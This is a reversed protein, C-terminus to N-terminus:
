LNNIWKLKACKSDVTYFFKVYNITTKIFELRFNYLVIVLNLIQITQLYRKKWREIFKTWSNKTLLLLNLCKYHYQFVVVDM